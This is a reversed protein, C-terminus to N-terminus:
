KKMIDPIEIGGRTEISKKAEAQRLRDVIELLSLYDKMTDRLNKQQSEITAAVMPMAGGNKTEKWVVRDTLKEFPTKEVYAKWTELQKEAFDLEVTIFKNKTAM